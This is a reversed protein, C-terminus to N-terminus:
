APEAAAASVLLHWVPLLIRGALTLGMSTIGSVVAAVVPGALFSGLGVVLGVSAALAVPKRLPTALHWATTLHERVRQTMGSVCTRANSVKGSVVACSLGLRGGFGALGWSCARGTKGGPPCSRTPM